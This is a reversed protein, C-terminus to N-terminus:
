KILSKYVLEIDPNKALEEPTDKLPAYIDAGYLKYYAVGDVVIVKVRDGDNHTIVFFRVEYVGKNDEYLLKNKLNLKVEKVM